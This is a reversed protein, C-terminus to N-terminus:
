KVRSNFIETDYIMKGMTNDLLERVESPLQELGKLVNNFDDGFLAILEDKSPM